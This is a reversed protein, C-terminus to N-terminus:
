LFDEVVRKRRNATEMMRSIKFSILGKSIKKKLIKFDLSITRQSNKHFTSQNNLKRESKMQLSTLKNLEVLQEKELFEM